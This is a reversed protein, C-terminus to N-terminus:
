MVLGPRRQGAKWSLEPSSQLVPLIIGSDLFPLRLLQSPFPSNALVIQKNVHM